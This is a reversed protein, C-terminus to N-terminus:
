HIAPGARLQEALHHLLVVLAAAVCLHAAIAVEDGPQLALVLAGELAEPFRAQLAQVFRGRQALGYVRPMDAVFWAMVREVGAPVALTGGAQLLTAAFQADSGVGQHLAGPQQQQLAVGALRRRAEAGGDGPPRFAQSPCVAHEAQEDVGQRHDAPHIGFLCQEVPQLGQLAVIQLQALVGMRRQSVHLAPRPLASLRQEVADDDELVVRDVLAQAVARGTPQAEALRGVVVDGVERHVQRHVQAFLQRDFVQVQTTAEALRHHLTNAGHHLVQQFFDEGVRLHGQAVQLAQWRCL